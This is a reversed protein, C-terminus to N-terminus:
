PKSTIPAFKRFAKIVEDDIAKKQADTLGPVEAKRISDDMAKDFASQDLEGNVYIAGLNFIVLGRNALFNAAFDLVADTLPGGKLIWALYPTSAFLVKLGTAGFKKIGKFDYKGSLAM